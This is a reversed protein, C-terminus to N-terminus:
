KDKKSLFSNLIQAAEARTISKKPKFTNDSYGSILGEKKMWKVANIAYESIETEDIFMEDCEIIPEKEIRWMLVAVDQRTIPLGIGFEDRNIGKTVNGEVATYIYPAYWANNDVDNLECNGSKIEIGASLLLMKIFEERKVAREPQFLNEGVGSIINKKYLSIIAEKAWEVGSIDSFVGNGGAGSINQEGVIPTIGFSSSSGGISSSSGGGGGSPVVTKKNYTVVADNVYKCLDSISNFSQKLVDDNIDNKYKCASYAGYNLESLTSTSYKEFIASIDGYGSVNKMEHSICAISLKDYFDSATAPSSSIVSNYLSYRDSAQMNKLTNDIEANASSFGDYGNNAILASKYGSMDEYNEPFIIKDIDAANNICLLVFEASSNNVADSIDSVKSYSAGAIANAAKKRGAQTLMKYLTLDVGIKANNAEDELIAYIDAGTKSSVDSVFNVVESASPIFKSNVSFTSSSNEVTLIFNYKDGTDSKIKMDSFIYEGNSDTKTQRFIKYYDTTYQINIDEPLVRDDNESICYLLVRKNAFGGGLAGSVTIACTDTDYNVEISESFVRASILIAFLATFILIRRKM